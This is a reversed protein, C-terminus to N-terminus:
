VSHSQSEYHRFEKANHYVFIEREIFRNTIDIERKIFRNSQIGRNEYDQWDLIFMTDMISTENTNRYFFYLRVEDDTTNEKDQNDSTQPNFKVNYNKHSQSLPPRLGLYPKSLFILRAKIINTVSNSFKVASQVLKTYLARIDAVFTSLGVTVYCM